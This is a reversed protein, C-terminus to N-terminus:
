PATLAGLGGSVPVVPMLPPADGNFVSHRPYRATHVNILEIESFRGPPDELM